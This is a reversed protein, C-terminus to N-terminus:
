SPRYGDASTGAGVQARPSEPSGRAGVHTSTEVRCGLRPRCGLLGGGLEGLLVLEVDAVADREQEVLVAEDLVPAVRVRPERSQRGVPDDGPAPAMSPRGTMTM